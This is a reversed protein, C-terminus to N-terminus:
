RIRIYLVEGLNVSSIAAGQELWVSEVRGASPEGEMYALLAWSDFVVVVATRHTASRSSASAVGSPWSHTLGPGTVRGPAACRGPRIRGAPRLTRWGASVCRTETPISPSRM